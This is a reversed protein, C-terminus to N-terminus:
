HHRSGAARSPRAATKTDTTLPRGRQPAPPDIDVPTDVGAPHPPVVSGVPPWGFAPLSNMWWSMWLRSGDAWEGWFREYSDGPDVRGSLIDSM